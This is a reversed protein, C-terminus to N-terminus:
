EGGDRLKLTAYIITGPFSVPLPKAWARRNVTAAAGGSLLKVAGGDAGAYQVIDSLGLGRRPNGTGSVGREVALSIAECDDKVQHHRQLSSRLGVGSDAVAFTVKSELPYCQLAVWGGGRGSHEAVNHTAELVSTALHQADQPDSEAFLNRVKTALQDAGDELDFRTIELMKDGQPKENVTSLGCTVGLDKLRHHLHMRALYSRVQPDVPLVIEPLIGNTIADDALAMVTLLGFTDVFSAGRLDILVQGPPSPRFYHSANGHGFQRPATM